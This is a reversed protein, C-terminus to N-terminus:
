DIIKWIVQTKINKTIIIGYKEYKEAFIANKLKRKWYKKKIKQSGKGKNEQRVHQGPM